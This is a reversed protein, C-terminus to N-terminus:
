AAVVQKRARTWDGCGIYRQVFFLGSYDVNNARHLKIEDTCVAHTKTGSVQGNGYNVRYM